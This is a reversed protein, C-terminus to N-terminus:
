YVEQEEYRTIKVQRHINIISLNHIYMTNWYPSTLRIATVIAERDLKEGNYENLRIYLCKGNSLSVRYLVRSFKVPNPTNM